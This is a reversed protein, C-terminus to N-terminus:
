REDLPPRPERQTRPSIRASIASPPRCARLRGQRQSLSFCIAGPPSPPWGAHCGSCTSRTEHASLYVFRSIVFAYVGRFEFSFVNRLLVVVAAVFLCRLFAYFPPFIIPVCVHRPSISSLLQPPIIISIFFFLFLQFRQAVRASKKHTTTTCVMLM